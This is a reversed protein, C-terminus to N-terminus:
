QGSDFMRKAIYEATHGYENKKWPSAGHEMLHLYVDRAGRQAAWHMATCGCGERADPDHCVLMKCLEAYRAPDRSRSRKAAIHLPLEGDLNEAELSAGHAILLGVASNRGYRVALHLPSEDNRDLANVGLPYRDILIECVSHHGNRAALHMPTRGRDDTKRPSAGKGLLFLCAESHGYNSCLHLMTRGCADTEESSLGSGILLRMMDVLGYRAAWVCLKRCAEAGALLPDAGRELLTMCLDIDGREAALRLVTRGRGDLDNVTAAEISSQAIEEGCMVREHLTRAAM